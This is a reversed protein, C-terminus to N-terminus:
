RTDMLESEAMDEAPPPQNAELIQMNRYEENNFRERSGFAFQLALWAFSSTQKLDDYYEPAIRRVQPLRHWPIYHFDHHETHLGFNFNLLNLWGYYSASPQYFNYGYFHSNSLMLGFILPHLFGTAFLSSLYMYLLAKWGFALYLVVMMALSILPYIVAWKEIKYRRYGSVLHEDALISLALKGPTLQRTAIATIAYVILGVISRLVQFVIMIGAIPWFLPTTFCTTLRRIKPGPVWNFVRDKMALLVSRRRKIFDKHSGLHNHHVHHEIWWCHHGMFMMPLSTFTFLWRNAQKSRFVLAHNCEHALNFLAVNIMSGVVYAALVAVWWSGWSVAIAIGIQAAAVGLCWFATAISRGFLQKLEPHERLMSRARGLHWQADSKEHDEVPDCIDLEFGPFVPTPTGLIRWHFRPTFGGPVTEVRVTEVPVTEVAQQDVSKSDVIM